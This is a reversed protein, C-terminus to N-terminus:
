NCAIIIIIIITAIYTNWALLLFLSRRRVIAIFVLVMKWLFIVSGKGM